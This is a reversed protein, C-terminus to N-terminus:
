AAEAHRIGLSGALVGLGASVAASDGLQQSTVLPATVGTSPNQRSSSVQAALRVEAAEEIMCPVCKPGDLTEVRTEDAAFYRWCNDCRGHDPVKSEWSMAARFAPSVNAQELILRFASM